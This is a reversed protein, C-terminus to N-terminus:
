GLPILFEDLPIIIKRPSYYATRTFQAHYITGRHITRPPNHATFQAAIFQAAIFQAAIFQAAM